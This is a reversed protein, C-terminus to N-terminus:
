RTSRRALAEEILKAVVDGHCPHEGGRAAAPTRPKCHCDLVVDEGERVRRYLDNMVRRM